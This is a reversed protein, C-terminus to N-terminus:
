VPAVRQVRFGSFQVRFGSGQFSFGAGALREACIGGCGLLGGDNGQDRAGASGVMGRVSRAIRGRSGAAGAAGFAARFRRGFVSKSMYVHGGELGGHKANEMGKDGQGRIVKDRWEKTGPLKAGGHRLGGQALGFPWKTV